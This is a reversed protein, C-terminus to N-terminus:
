HFLGIRLKIINTLITLTKDLSSILSSYGSYKSLFSCLTFFEEPLLFCYLSTSFAKSKPSCLLGYPSLVPTTRSVKELKPNWYLELILSKTASREPLEVVSLIKQKNLLFKSWLWGQMCPTNERMWLVELKWWFVIREM